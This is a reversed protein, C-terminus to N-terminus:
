TQELTKKMEEYDNKNIEGKAFRIKLITVPDNILETYTQNDKLPENFKQKHEVVMKYLQSAWERIAKGSMSSIGFVPTHSIGKDDVYPIVLRHRKGSEQLFGSMLTLDDSGAGFAAFRTRRSEQRIDWSDLLVASLPIIIEWNSIPDKSHKLFIIFGNTLILEGVEHDDIKGGALHYKHGGYYEGSRVHLVTNGYEENFCAPCLQQNSFIFSSGNRYCKTCIIIGRSLGL